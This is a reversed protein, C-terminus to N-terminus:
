RDTADDRVDDGALASRLREKRETRRQVVGAVQVGVQNRLRGLVFYSLVASILLAILLRLLPDIPAPVFFLAAAVVVFIGMRALTYKMFPSM